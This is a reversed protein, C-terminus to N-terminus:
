EAWKPRLLKLPEEGDFALVVTM